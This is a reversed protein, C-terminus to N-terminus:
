AARTEKCSTSQISLPRQYTSPHAQRSNLRCGAAFTARRIELRAALRLPHELELALTIVLLRVTHAAKVLSRDAHM